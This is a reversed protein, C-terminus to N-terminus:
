GALLSPHSSLYTELTQKSEARETNSVGESDLREIRNQLRSYEGEFMDPFSNLLELVYEEVEVVFEAISCADGRVVAVVELLWREGIGRL